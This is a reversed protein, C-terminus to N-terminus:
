PIGHSQMRVWCVLCGEALMPSRSNISIHHKGGRQAHFIPVPQGGASYVMLDPTQGHLDELFALLSPHIFLRPLHDSSGQQPKHHCVMVLDMELAPGHPLTQAAKPYLTTDTSIHVTPILGM